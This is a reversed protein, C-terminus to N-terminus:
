QGKRESPIRSNWGSRERDIPQTLLRDASWGLAYRSRLAPEPLATQEAWEALTLKIGDHELVVNDRRNRSQIKPVAWRVNGPEYNKSNVIRDISHRPSPRTGIEAFFADFNSVWAPHITVGRGGYRDYGKSKPNFCREKMKCWCRYEATKLGRRSQGHTSIPPMHALRREIRLCGCSGTTGNVLSRLKFSRATGCDCKAIVCRYNKRTEAPATVVLSGFRRGIFQLLLVTTRDRLKQAVRAAGESGALM